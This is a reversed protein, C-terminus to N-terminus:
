TKASKIISIFGCVNSIYMFYITKDDFLLSFPVHNIRSLSSTITTSDDNRKLNGVVFLRTPYSAKMALRVKADSIPAYSTLSHVYEYIM